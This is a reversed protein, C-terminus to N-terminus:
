AIVFFLQGGARERREGVGVIDCVVPMKQLLDEFFGIAAMFDLFAVELLVTFRQPRIQGRGDKVMWVSLSEIAQHHELIDDLALSGFQELLFPVVDGIFQMIPQCLNGSASMLMQLGKGTMIARVRRSGALFELSREFQGLERHSLRTPQNGSQTGGGQVVKAQRRRQAQM